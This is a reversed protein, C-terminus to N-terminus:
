IWWHTCRFILVFRDDTTVHYCGIPGGDNSPRQAAEHAATLYAILKSHCRNYSAQNKIQSNTGVTKNSTPCKVLCTELYDTLIHNKESFPRYGVIIEPVPICMYLFKVMEMYVKWNGNGCNGIARLVFYIACTYVNAGIM